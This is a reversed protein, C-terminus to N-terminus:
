FPAQDADTYQGPSKFVTTGIVDWPGMRRPELYIPPIIARAWETDRMGTLVQVSLKLTAGSLDALGEM